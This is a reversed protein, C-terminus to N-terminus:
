GLKINNEKCLEALNKGNWKKREAKSLEGVVKFRVYDKKSAPYGLAAYTTPYPLDLFVENNYRGYPGFNGVDAVIAYVTKNNSENTIKLITGYPLIPLKTGNGKAYAVHYDPINKYRLSNLGTLGNDDGATHGYYTIQTRIGETAGLPTLSILGNGYNNSGGTDSSEYCNSGV